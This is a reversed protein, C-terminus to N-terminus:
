PDSAITSTAVPESRVTVSGPGVPPVGSQDDSPRRTYQGTTSGPVPARNCETSGECASPVGM